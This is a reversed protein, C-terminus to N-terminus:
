LGVPFAVILHRLRAYRVTSKNDVM